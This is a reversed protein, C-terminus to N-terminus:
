VYSFLDLLSFLTLVELNCLGQYPHSGGIFDHSWRVSTKLGSSALVFERQVDLVVVCSCVRVKQNHSKQGEASCEVLVECVVPVCVCM